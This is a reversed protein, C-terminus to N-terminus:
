WCCRRMYDDVVCLLRCGPVWIAGIGMTAVGGAGWVVSMSMPAM